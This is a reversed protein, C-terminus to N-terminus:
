CELKTWLWGIHSVEHFRWISVSLERIWKKPHDSQDSQLEHLWLQSPPWCSLCLSHRNFWSFRFFECFWSVEFFHFLRFFISLGHPANLASFRFQLEKEHEPLTKNLKASKKRMNLNRWSANSILSITSKM